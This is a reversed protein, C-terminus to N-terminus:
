LSSHESLKDILNVGSVNSADIGASSLAIIVKELDFINGFQGNNEQIKEEVSKLYSSPVSNGSKGLAWVWWEDGYASALNNDLVYNALFDVEESVQELLEQSPGEEKQEESEPETVPDSTDEESKDSDNVESDEEEENDGADGGDFTQLRLQIHEGPQVQHGLVGIQSSQDNIQFDWYQNEELDVDGVNNIFTFWEPHVSVDIHVGQNEAAQVIADY